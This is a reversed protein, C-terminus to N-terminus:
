KVQSTIKKMHIACYSLIQNRYLSKTKQEKNKPNKIINNGKNIEKNIWNDMKCKVYEAGQKATTLSQPSTCKANQMGEMILVSSGNYNWPGLALVLIIFFLIVPLLVLFWSLNKYGANCILNLVFTWFGVYGLKVFLMVAKNPADYCEYQGLCLTNDSNGNQVLMIILLFLEVFLYLQAPTCLKNLDPFKM